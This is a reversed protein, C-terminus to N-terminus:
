PWCGGQNLTECERQGSSMAQDGSKPGAKNLGAFLMDASRRTLTYVHM